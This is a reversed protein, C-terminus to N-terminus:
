TVTLGEDSFKKKYEKWKSDLSADAKQLTSVMISELCTVVGTLNGKSDFIKELLIEGDLTSPIGKFAPKSHDIKYKESIKM